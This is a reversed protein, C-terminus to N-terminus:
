VSVVITEARGITGPTYGADEIAHYSCELFLREQPDLRRAEHPSIKFFLPDFLDIGDIFGGWKTYITGAKGKEPDYYTEWSWRERPIESICNVGNALNRWFAQLTDAQPYRGS